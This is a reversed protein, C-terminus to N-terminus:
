LSLLWFLFCYDFDDHEACKAPQLLRYLLKAPEPAGQIKFGEFITFLLKATIHVPM